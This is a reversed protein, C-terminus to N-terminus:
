GALSLQRTARLARRAVDDAPGTADLVILNDGSEQYWLLVPATQANYVRLRNRVAEPADDKRRMFMGKPSRPCSEHVEGPRVGSTPTQCADCITRGSLRRILEEDDVDFNLVLDLSRHMQRLIADLGDAQAVTRVVGDLVVGNRCEPDALAQRLVGFIVDDPVLDGRDMYTRARLGLPTAAAAADRLIEGTSLKPISLAAALREGQTGKGCGPPGLLLIIM